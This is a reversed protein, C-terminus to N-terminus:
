HTGLHKLVNISIFEISFLDNLLIMRFFEYVFLECEKQSCFKTIKYKGKYILRILDTKM